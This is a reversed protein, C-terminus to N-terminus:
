VEGARSCCFVLFIGRIDPFFQPKERRCNPCPKDKGLQDLCKKCLLKGCEAHQWPEEAVDLCIVCMLEADPQSIFKYKMVSETAM